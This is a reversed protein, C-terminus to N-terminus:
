PASRSKNSGVPIDDARFSWDIQSATPKPEKLAAAALWTEAERLSIGRLLLGKNRDNNAWETSRQLLRTHMRVWELDADVAKALADIRQAYEAEDLFSVWQLGRISEPLADAEITKCVVPVIRKNLEVAHALERRCMSSAASQPSIVFIIADSGAIAVFVEQIWQASPPIDEWDIWAEKGVEELSHRLRDVFIRDSRSYSIFVHAM